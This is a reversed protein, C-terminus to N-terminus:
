WHIRAAYGGIPRMLPEGFVAFAEITSADGGQNPPFFVDGIVDGPIWVGRFRVVGPINVKQCDNAMAFRDASETAGGEGGSNTRSFSRTEDPVPDCLSWRIGKNTETPIVWRGLRVTLKTVSRSIM